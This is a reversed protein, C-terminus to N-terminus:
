VQFYVYVCVCNLSFPSVHYTIPFKYSIQNYAYSQKEKLLPKLQTVLQWKMFIRM